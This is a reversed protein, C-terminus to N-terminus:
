GEGKDVAFRLHKWGGVSAEAEAAVQRFNDRYIVAQGASLRPAESPTVALGVQWVTGGAQGAGHIHGNSAMGRWPMQCQGKAQYQNRCATCM